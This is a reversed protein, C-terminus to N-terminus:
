EGYHNEVDAVGESLCYRSSCSAYGDFLQYNNGIIPLYIFFIRIERM